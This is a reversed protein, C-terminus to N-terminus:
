GRKMFAEVYLQFAEKEKPYLEIDSYAPYSGDPFRTAVLRAAGVFPLWNVNMQTTVRIHVLRMEDPIWDLEPKRIYSTFRGNYEM